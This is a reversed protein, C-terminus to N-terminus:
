QKVQSMLIKLVLTPYIESGSTCFMECNVKAANNTQIINISKKAANNTQIINISKVQSMLIKLVLTPYIESGSTCFM